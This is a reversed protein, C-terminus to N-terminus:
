DIFRKLEEWLQAVPLGMVNYYSGEIRDIGVAGIWEQIGYAGAKDLPRYTKVYHEIMEDSLTKFHVKTCSSFTSKKQQSQLQVGTVVDHTQGSLRKLMAKAALENEPKGIIEGQLIVVTDATILLENAALEAMMAEAKLGALYEPVQYPNMEPDFNEEVSKTRLEFNLELQEMLQQRRPSKSALVLRYGGTNQM